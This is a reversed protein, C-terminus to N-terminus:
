NIYKEVVHNDPQRRLWNEFNWPTGDEWLFEGCLRCSRRGLLWVRAGSVLDAVFENEKASHISVLDAKFYFNFCADTKRDFRRMIATFEQRRAICRKTSISTANGKLSLGPLLVVKINCPYIILGGLKAIITLWCYYM